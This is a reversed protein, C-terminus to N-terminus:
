SHGRLTSRTENSGVAGTDDLGLLATNSNHGTEDVLLSGDTNHGPGAGQSVLRDVLSGGMAESLGSNNSNASIWELSSVEDIDELAKNVVWLGFTDDHDTFNATLVLFACSFPESIMVVAFEGDDAKDGSLGCGGATAHAVGTGDDFASLSVSLTFNSCKLGVADLNDVVWGHHSHSHSLEHAM